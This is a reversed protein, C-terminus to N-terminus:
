IKLNIGIYLSLSLNEKQNVNDNIKVVNPYKGMDIAYGTHLTKQEARSYDFHDNVENVQM